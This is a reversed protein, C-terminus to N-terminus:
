ERRKTPHKKPELNNSSVHYQRKRQRKRIQLLQSFSYSPDEGGEENEEMSLHKKFIVNKPKKHRRNFALHPLSAVHTKKKLTRAYRFLSTRHHCNAMM